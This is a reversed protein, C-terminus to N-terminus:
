EFFFFEFPISGSYVDNINHIQTELKHWKVYDRLHYKLEFYVRVGVCVCVCSGIVFNFMRIVTM